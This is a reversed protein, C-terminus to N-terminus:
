RVESVVATWVGNPAPKWGTIARGGTFLPRARPEAEYIIPAAETGSDQTLFEVPATLPYTGTAFQVRVPADHLGREKLRRVADRAGRLSALPGDTQAPNPRAVQGSWADNGDPAVHLIVPGAAEVPIPSLGGFVLTALLTLPFRLTDMPEF